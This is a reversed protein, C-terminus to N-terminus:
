RVEPFGQRGGEPRLTSFCQLEPPFHSSHAAHPIFRCQSRHESTCPSEWASGANRPEGSAASRVDLCPWLKTEVGSILAAVPM